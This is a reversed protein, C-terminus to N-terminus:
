RGLRRGLRRGLTLRPAQTLLRGDGSENMITGGLDSSKPFIEPYAEFDESKPPVFHGEDPETRYGM